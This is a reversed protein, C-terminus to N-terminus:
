PLRAVRFGFSSSRYDAPFRNRFSARVYGPQTFWSGGRLIHRGCDGEMWASGDVPANADNDNWCDTVWEFVNGIMDYLGFANARFSGVPATHVFDDRCDFTRWGPYAAGASRDAVNAAQCAGSPDGAESDAPPKGALAAYEWESASLLRYPHGTKESLWHVYAEADNWSVCTVPHTDTQEFGPSQWGRDADTKWSGDYISCGAAKHGTEAVFRGYQGRTIEYRGVALAYDITVRRRPEDAIIQDARTAASGQMFRGPPLVMMEPCTACDRFVSGPSLAVTHPHERGLPWMLGIALVIGAAATLLIAAVPWKRRPRSTEVITPADVSPRSSVPVPGGGAATPMEAQGDFARDLAASFEAARQYRDARKKACAKAVLPDLSGPVSPKLRSPPSLDDNIVKYIVSAFSQGSFAREGTLLEYLVIGASYLDSRLDVTKGLLQEPSMYGPTGLITGAQTLESSEIRAIGFDMVKVTGTSSLMINGPKVDRHIVGMRHSYDLATLVSSLIRHIDDLTFAHKQKLLEVLTRGEVYEMAIFARGADEGYEYIAVINPHNLHGAAQAERHFRQVIDDDHPRAFNLQITKLAVFRRIMPDFAKYVIGMAGQGLMDVIDYKGIKQHHDVMAIVNRIPASPTALFLSSKHIVTLIHGSITLRAVGKLLAAFRRLVPTERGVVCTKV